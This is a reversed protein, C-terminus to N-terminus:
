KLNLHRIVKAPTGAAVVRAPIDKNVVSGAGIVSHAGIKVGPLIIAGTGIWVDREIVVPKQLLTERYPMQTDVIHTLSVISTYAAIQVNDHITVEGTGWIHVFEAIGVNEGIRVNEPNHIVFYRPLNTNGGLYALKGKWYTHRAVYGFFKFFKGIIKLRLIIKWIPLFVYDSFLYARSTFSKSCKM